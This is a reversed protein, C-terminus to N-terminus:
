NTMEDARLRVAPDGIVIYNRADNRAVYRNALAASTVLQSAFAERLNQTEQLEASLVAWRLNFEDTAYGLRDGKLIRVMVNRMEQVQPRSRSNQFSYAWARDVHAFSALAGQLLMRQPLRALIPEPVLQKPPQDLSTGFNDEKPCGGGYCAFFFHILGSLSSDPLDAATLLHEPQTPGFGPWDQCLIAGQKERLKPDDLNFRVGHSGTFLLAPPGSSDKGSLMNLLGQKTADQALLPVVEFGNYGNLTRVTETGTVIPKVVQNHLLGTARDGANRTAFIAARKKQRVEQATEYVVVNQAYIGYDEPTDFDLRGVSWYLDLFYQFEFPIEAPSGVLLVYLPIGQEPDVISLGAGQREVWKRVDDSPQIGSLGEFIRFLKKNNVQKERHEILPALAKKIKPDADKAFLVCWGAQDLRNPDVDAIALHKDAGPAGRQQVSLQDSEIRELDSETVGPIVNGTEAEIGFPLPLESPELNRDDPPTEPVQGNAM